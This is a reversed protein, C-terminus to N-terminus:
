KWQAKPTHCVEKWIPAEDGYMPQLILMRTPQWLWCPYFLALLCLAPTLLCWSTVELCRKWVEQPQRWGPPSCLSPILLPPFAESIRKLCLHLSSGCLSWLEKGKDGCPQVNMFVIQTAKPNSMWPYSWPLTVILVLRCTQHWCGLLILRWNWFWSYSILWM